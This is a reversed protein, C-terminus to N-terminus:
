EVFILTHGQVEDHRLVMFIEDHITISNLFLDFRVIDEDATSAGFMEASFTLSVMEGAPVTFVAYVPIYAIYSDSVGGSITESDVLEGDISTGFWTPHWGSGANDSWTARITFAIVLMDDCEPEAAVFDLKLVDKTGESIWGTPSDANLTMMLRNGLNVEGESTQTPYNCDPALEATDDTAGTDLTDDKVEAPPVTACGTLGLAGATVFIAAATFAITAPLFPLSSSRVDDGKAWRIM